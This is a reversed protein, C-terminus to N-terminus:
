LMNIPDLDLFLRLQKSAKQALAFFYLSRIAQWDQGKILCTFRKRGRLLALPAPAPGLMQVGLETAKGRLAQALEVDTLAEDHQLFDDKGDFGNFARIGGDTAASLEAAWAGHHYFSGLWSLVFAKIQWGNAKTSQLGHGFDFRCAQGELGSAADKEFLM